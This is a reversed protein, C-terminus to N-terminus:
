RPVKSVFHYSGSEVALVVRDGERRLFKVGKVRDIPKGGETVADPSKAPVFVTATTNAPITVNLDFNGDRLKWATAIKGRASTYEAKVWDIPKNDPNSGSSSPGPAIIIRQYGAGDTDIGALIRYACEMVAGFSYHSFSNMAANQKGDKGDFGHEKTFSDWREWVSNAGNM